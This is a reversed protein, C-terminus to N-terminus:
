KLELVTNSCKVCHKNGIKDSIWEDEPEFEKGCDKCRVPFISEFGKRYDNLSGRFGDGKVGM